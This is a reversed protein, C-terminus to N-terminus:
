RDAQKASLQRNRPAYRKVNNASLPGEGIRGNEEMGTRTHGGM